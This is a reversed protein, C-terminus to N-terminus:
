KSLLIIVDYTQQSVNYARKHYSHVVESRPILAGARGRGIGIGVLRAEPPV